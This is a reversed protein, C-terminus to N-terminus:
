AMCAALALPSLCPTEKELVGDDDIYSRCDLLVRWKDSVALFDSNLDPLDLSCHETESLMFDCLNM